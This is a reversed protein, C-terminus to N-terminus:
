HIDCVYRAAASEMELQFIDHITLPCKRGEERSEQLAQNCLPHELPANPQFYITAATGSDFHSQNNLQQAFSCFPINVNDHSIVFPMSHVQQCVKELANASITTFMHVSWKHSMTLGFAHLLDLSKAAIGQAHLFTSLFKPWHNHDHSQAYMLQFIIFLVILDSLKKTYKRDKEQTRSVKQLLAWLKPTSGPTPSSLKLVMDEILFHTLGSDSVEYSPCMSLEQIGQLEKKVVDAVCSFEFEEMVLQAAKARVDTSGTAQPPSRWHEMIGPLEKSVM